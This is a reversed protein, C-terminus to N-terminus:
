FSPWAFIEIKPSKKSFVHSQNTGSINAIFVLGLKCGMAIVDPIFPHCELVFANHKGFNVVRAVNTKVDWVVLNGMEDGSVVLDPNPRSWSVTNM